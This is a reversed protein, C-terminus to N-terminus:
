GEGQLLIKSTVLFNVIIVIACSPFQALYHCIAGIRRHTGFVHPLKYVLVGHASFTRQLIDNCRFPPQLVLAGICEGHPLPFVVQRVMQAINPYHKTRSGAIRCLDHLIGVIKGKAHLHGRPKALAGRVVFVKVVALLLLRIKPQVPVIVPCPKIVWHDSPPM